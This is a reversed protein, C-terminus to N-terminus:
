PKFETLIRVTELKIGDEEMAKKGIDSNMLETFDKMDPVEALVGYIGPYRTDHFTRAKIGYQAFLEHRSGPGDKWANCWVIPNKVEHTIIVTAM